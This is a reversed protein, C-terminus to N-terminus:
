FPDAVEDQEDLKDLDLGIEALFENIKVYATDLIRWPIHVEKVETIRRRGEGREKVTATFSVELPRPLKMLAELGYIVTQKSEPPHIVQRYNNAASPKDPRMSKPPEVTLTGLEEEELYPQGKNKYTIRMSPAVEAFYSTLQIRFLECAKGRSLKEGDYHAYQSLSQLEQLENKLEQVERRADFLGQMRRRQSYEEPDLVRESSEADRIQNESSSM